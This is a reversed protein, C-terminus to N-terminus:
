NSLPEGLDYDFPGNALLDELAAEGRSTNAELADGEEAVWARLEDAPCRDDISRQRLSEIATAAAHFASSDVEDIADITSQALPM